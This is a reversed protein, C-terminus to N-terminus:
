STSASPSIAVTFPDKGMLVGYQKQRQELRDRVDEDLESARSKAEKERLGFAVLHEIIDMDLNDREMRDQVEALMTKREGSLKVRKNLREMSNHLNKTTDVVLSSACKVPLTLASILALTKTKM